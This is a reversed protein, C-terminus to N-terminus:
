KNMLEEMELGTMTKITKFIHWLIFLMLITCPLAIVPFSLATLKGIQENYEVSGPAAFVLYKALAFNLIASLLFSLALWLSSRKLYAEFVSRLNKADLQDYILETKFFQDNLLLKKVLPEKIFASGAIILGIILPVAAEKVAIWQPDLEFLSFVGTLLVSVLGLVSIFNLKKQQVFDYAGYGLPFALAILLAYLPGLLEPKSLKTLVLVPIVINFLLSYLPNEKKKEM